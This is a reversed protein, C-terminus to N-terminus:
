ILQKSVDLAQDVSGTHYLDFFTMLDLLLYFKSANSASVNQGV